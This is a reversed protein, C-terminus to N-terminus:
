TFFEDFVYPIHVGARDAEVVRTLEDQLYKRTLRKGNHITNELSRIVLRLHNFEGSNASEPTYGYYYVFLGVELNLKAIYQNLDVPKMKFM